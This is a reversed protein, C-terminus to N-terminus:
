MKDAIEAIKSRYINQLEIEGYIDSGRFVESMRKMGNKNGSYQEMDVQANYDGDIICICDEGIRQLALKMLDIDLNQAETIYVGARKGSTDYGRIDSMPLLVLSGNKIMADVGAMHGIKSGLMNGISSDLLKEDKTGPLYGLKASNRTAVPNCFVIIRDIRHKELLYFLYGLALYSKGTGAKGKIMTVQNRSFSDLAMMQYSDNNYPKIEDFYSTKYKISDVKHHTTGDWIYISIINDSNDKLILYENTLLNYHNLDINEYFYALDEDTVVVTHYGTYQFVQGNKDNLYSTVNKLGFVNKALFKCGLDDSIFEIPSYYNDYYSACACIKADNTNLLGDIDFIKQSYEKIGSDYLILDWDNNHDSLQKLIGKIKSKINDDKNSSHQMNVLENITISSLLFRDNFTIKPMNLLSCTDYFKIM